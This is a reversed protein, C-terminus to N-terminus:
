KQDHFIPRNLHYIQHMNMNQVLTEYFQNVALDFDLINNLDKNKLNKLPSYINYEKHQSEISVISTDLGKRIQNNNDSLNQTRSSTHENNSRTSIKNSNEIISKNDSTSLANPGQETSNSNDSQKLDTNALSKGISSFGYSPFAM